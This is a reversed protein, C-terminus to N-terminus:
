LISLASFTRRTVTVKKRPRPRACPSRNTPNTIQSTSYNVGAFGTVCGDLTPRQDPLNYCRRGYDEERYPSSCRKIAYWPTSSAAALAFPAPRSAVDSVQSVHWRKRTGSIRFLGRNNAESGRQTIRTAQPDKRQCGFPLRKIDGSPSPCSQGNVM